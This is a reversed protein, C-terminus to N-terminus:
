EHVWFWLEVYAAPALALGAHLIAVSLYALFAGVHIM